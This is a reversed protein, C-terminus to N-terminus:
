EEADKPDAAAGHAGAETHRPACDSSRSGRAPSSEQSRPPSVGGERGGSLVERQARCMAGARGDPIDKRTRNKFVERMKLGLQIGGTRCLGGSWDDGVGHTDGGGLLLLGGQM